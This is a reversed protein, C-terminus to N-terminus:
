AMQTVVVHPILQFYEENNWNKYWVSDCWYIGLFHWITTNYRFAFPIVFISGLYMNEWEWFFFFKSLSPYFGDLTIIECWSLVAFHTYIETKWKIKVWEVWRVSLSWLDNCTIKSYNMNNITDFICTKQQVNNLLNVHFQRKWPQTCQYSSAVGRTLNKQAIKKQKLIMWYVM